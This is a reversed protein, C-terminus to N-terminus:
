YFDKPLETEFELYQGGDPHWFSLKYAHLCLRPFERGGYLNDGIIPHGIHQTHLRLQNTRGTIPKMELLTSDSFREIVKFESEAHKGEDTILWVREEDIKGIPAQIIGDDEKVVGAVRAFYKKEVIRRQFHKSLNSLAHQTKSIVILGSTKKDLRHILGPRIFDIPKKEYKYNLYHTLANLLTGSKVGKTPHVLMEAFKNIVIIQEDEFIIDLPIDEPLMSTLASLDLEIEITNGTRLKFGRDKQLGGVLCDGQNIIGRLYMKSLTPFKVLLFDELRANHFSEEVEFTVLESM